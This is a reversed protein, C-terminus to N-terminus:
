RPIGLKEYDDEKIKCGGLILFYLQITQNRIEKVKAESQLNDRHFYGNRYKERWEDIVQMMYKRAYSNVEIMWSNNKIVQELAWLTSDIVEENEMSFEVQGGWKSKIKFTKETKLKLIAWILQEISKLYGCIVGTLDLNESM